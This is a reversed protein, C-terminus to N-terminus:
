PKRVLIRRPDDHVVQMPLGLAKLEQFSKPHMIALAEGPRLWHEPFEPLTEVALHPEIEIGLAFEDEYDVLIMTRRIYFPITQEYHSVSYIRTAPTILPTMKRAVIMGSQRPSLHEYLDEICEIVLVSAVSVVAIAIWRRGTRLLVTAAIGGALFALAGALAEWWGQRYIERIWEDRTTDPLRWAV